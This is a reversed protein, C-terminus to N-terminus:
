VPVPLRANERRYPATIARIRALEADTPLGDHYYKAELEQIEKEVWAPFVVLNQNKSPLWTINETPAEAFIDASASTGNHIKVQAAATRIESLKPFDTGTLIHDIAAQKLMDAPVDKLMSAWVKATAIIDRPPFSLNADNLMELIEIVESPNAM